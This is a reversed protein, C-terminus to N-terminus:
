REAPARATPGRLRGRGAARPAGDDQEPRRVHGGAQRCLELGPDAPAYEVAVPGALDADDRGLIGFAVVTRGLRHASGDVADVDLDDIALSARQRGALGALDAEPAAAHDVAVVVVRHRRRLMEPVAPEVGAVGARDRCGARQAEETAAVVHHAEVADVDKGGLDLPHEFRMRRHLGGDREREARRDVAVDRGRRDLQVRRAAGFGRLEDAVRALVEPRARRALEDHHVGQRAVRRALHDLPQDRFVEGPAVLEHRRARSSTPIATEYAAAVRLLDADARPRGILQLGMPLGREGFGAPVAICPLGAFTAYITVEMWRHYTDMARGAIERPWREKADFPWVQATPLALVDYNEFLNLMQQHFVTRVVSARMTDNGTLGEAQDVEWLAEPKVLARQEPKRLFPAIRGAVIWRRWVLMAEWVRTVDFPSSVPEIMAGLAEFRRLAAECTALVGSEMALHGDLDGALRRPRARRRADRRARRRCIWRQRRAVVPRAPRVRGARRAPARSRARQAGDPRVDVAPVRVRRGAALEARPGPESAHRLRQELRRSQAPKGHLRQRRRGRAHADRARGRCRRQKRGGLADVDYPNLTAGFIDNFTHSGLGFEPCNTRGIVIAGAAKMRQVLLDDHAPVFDVLRSGLTTRVGAVSVADKIAQPMGHMWGRRHGRALEADCADADALVAERDRFSVIANLAPNARDVRALTAEMVERCSIERSAIGRSLSEATLDCLEATV